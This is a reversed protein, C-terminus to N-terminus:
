DRKARKFIYSEPDMGILEWGDTGLRTLMQFVSFNRALLRSTPGDDEGYDISGAGNDKARIIKYEWRGGGPGLNQLVTALLKRFEAQERLLREIVASGAGEAHAEAAAPAASPAPASEAVPVLSKRRGTGDLRFQGSALLHEMLRRLRNTLNPGGDDAVGYTTCIWARVDNLPMRGNREECARRLLPGALDYDMRIRSAKESM